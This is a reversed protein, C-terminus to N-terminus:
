GSSAWGTGNRKGEAIRGIISQDALDYIAGMQRVRLGLLTKSESCIALHRNSPSLLAAEVRPKGGKLAVAM